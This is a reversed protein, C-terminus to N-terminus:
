IRKSKLLIFEVLNKFSDFVIYKELLSHQDYYTSRILAQTNFPMKNKYIFVIKDGLLLLLPVLAM